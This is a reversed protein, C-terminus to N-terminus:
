KTFINACCSAGLNMALTGFGIPISIEVYM